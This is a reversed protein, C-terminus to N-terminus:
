HHDSAALGLDRKWRACHHRKFQDHGLRSRNTCFFGCIRRSRQTRGFFTELFRM